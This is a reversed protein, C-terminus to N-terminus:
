DQNETKPEEDAILGAYKNYLFSSILLLAGVSVLVITKDITGLHALDYFFLKLLTIGFLIMAMFRLHKKAKWIGMSILFLSYVGWFISLGLKYAQSSGAIDLWHLLESSAVWLVTGYLLLDFGVRFPGAMFTQRTFTYGAGLALGLFCLSIYRIGIHMFGPQYDSSNETVLYSERLDSIALLGHTLFYFITLLLLGLTIYGLQKKKLRYFNLLALGSIFFLSYNFLWSTKFDRIDQVWSSASTSVTGTNMAFIAAAKQQDWYNAIEQNFTFYSIVILLIPITNWISINAPWASRVLVNLWQMYGLVAIFLLSSGFTINWFPSYEAANSTNFSMGWDHLLSFFALFLLPYSLKEYFTTQQTRGVWFLVAAMGIWLLTVWNGDLQVPIALTIFVLVLGAVLHFLRRDALKQRYIVASVVFHVAANALTFIGLLHRGTNPSDLLSYGVGYFIFSNSLLLLVDGLGYNEQKLLKYGLFILYFTIFFISAFSLALGFHLTSSYDFGYWFLYILWTTAFALYYIFKWYKRFAIVLIGINIIAIYSLLTFASGSGNDLLFPVAYAGILGFHAIVQANYWLAAAIGLGTLLVMLGFAPLQPILAYYSHAAYTIFYAIAIAGSMLVASFNKYNKRLRLALGCLIGSMLYGLIIRLLPSILDRDIAYKAGISVGIITVAIGIKSILNEGIFKELKATSRKPKEPNTSVAPPPSIKKPPPAQSSEPKSTPAPKKQTPQETTEDAQIQKLAEQISEVEKAFAAQQRLLAELQEQLKKINEQKDM